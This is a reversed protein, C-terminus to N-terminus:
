MLVVANEPTSTYVRIWDFLYLIQRLITGVFSEIDSARRICIRQFGMADAIRAVDETAKIGAHNGKGGDEVIQVM